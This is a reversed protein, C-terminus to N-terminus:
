RQNASIDWAKHKPDNNNIKELQEAHASEFVAAAAHLQAACAAMTNTWLGIAETFSPDIAVQDGMADIQQRWMAVDAEAAEPAGKVWDSVAMANQFETSMGARAENIAEFPDAM